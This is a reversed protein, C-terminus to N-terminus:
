ATKSYLNLLQSLVKIAKVLTWVQTPSFKQPDTSALAELEETVAAHQDSAAQLRLTLEQWIEQLKEPCQDSNQQDPSLHASILYAVRLLQAADLNPDLDSVQQILRAANNSALNPLFENQRICTAPTNSDTM